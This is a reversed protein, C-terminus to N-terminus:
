LGKEKIYNKILDPTKHAKWNDFDMLVEKAYERMVMDMRVRTIPPCGEYGCEKIVQETTKM